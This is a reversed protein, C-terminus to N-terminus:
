NSSLKWSDVGLVQRCGGGDRLIWILKQWSEDGVFGQPDGVQVWM